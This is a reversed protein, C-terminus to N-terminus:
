EQGVLGVCHVALAATGVREVIGDQGFGASASLVTVSGQAGRDLRDLLQQRVIQTSRVPPPVLKSAIM